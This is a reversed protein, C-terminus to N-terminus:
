PEKETSESPPVNEGTTPGDRIIKRILPYSVADKADMVELHSDNMTKLAGQTRSIALTNAAPVTVM